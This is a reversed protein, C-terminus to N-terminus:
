LCCRDTHMTHVHRRKISREAKYTCAPAQYIERSQIYMGASSLDREASPIYTRANHTRQTRTTRRAKHTQAKTRQVLPILVLEKKAAGTTAMNGGEGSLVGLLVYINITVRKQTNTMLKKFSRPPAVKVTCLLKTAVKLERFLKVVVRLIMETTAWKPMELASLPEIVSVLQDMREHTALEIKGVLFGISNRRRGGAFIMM